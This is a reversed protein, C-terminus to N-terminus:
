IVELNALLTHTMLHFVTILCFVARVTTTPKNTKNGIVIKSARPRFAGVLGVTVQGVFPQGFPVGALTPRSSAVNALKSLSTAVPLYMSTSLKWIKRQPFSTKERFYGTLAPAFIGM